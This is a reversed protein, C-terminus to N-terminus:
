VQNCTCWLIDLPQSNAACVFASFPSFWVAFILPLHNIVWKLSNVGQQQTERGWLSNTWIELGSWGSMAQTSGPLSILAQARSFCGYRASVAQRAHLLFTELQMRRIVCFSKEIRAFIEWCRGLSLDSVAMGQMLVSLNRERPLSIGSSNCSSPKYTRRGGENPGSERSPCM